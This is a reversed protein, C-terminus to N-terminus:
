SLDHLNSYQSVIEVNSNEKSSLRHGLLTQCDRWQQNFQWAQNSLKMWVTLFAIRDHCIRCHTLFSREINQLTQQANQERATLLQESVVEAIRLSEEREVLLRHLPVDISPSVLVSWRTALESVDLLYRNKLLCQEFQQQVQMSLREALETLASTDEVSLEYWFAYIFDALAGQLPENEHFQKAVAIRQEHDYRSAPAELIRRSYYRFQSRAELSTKDKGLVLM